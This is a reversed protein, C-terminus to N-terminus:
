LPKLNDPMEAVVQSMCMILKKCYNLELFENPGHANSFPGLVGTVMFQAKPFTQTFFNLLPISGGEGMSLVPKGYFNLSARNLCDDLYPQCQPSNWGSGGHGVKFEVQAGYPPDKECLSKLDKTAQEANLTPPIRLSFKVNTEPRLVNGAVATAPLGDIGVISLQPKWIKNLYCVFPDSDVPKAGEVWPFKGLLSKGIVKAVDEAQKYRDGPINVHFPRAVTGTKKDDVRDIIQRVIRFTEPIIGSADGSHVGETTIKVKLVGTVVGRLTNTMWLQDYNGCGSDTCVILAPTGIRSKMSTIYHPIDHSGSEEDAEILVIVRNHKLKQTQVTKVALLAAFWAYGDDAGGRGYLKGDEEVPNTPSLGERWGTMHPQKDLHGYFLITEADKYSPEIEAFILPTRGKETILEVKFGQINQQKGWDIMFNAAKELKGNTAWEVDYERSLNDIRIYDKIASKVNNDFEKTVFEKAAAPDFTTTEM